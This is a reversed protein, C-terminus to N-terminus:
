YLVSDIKKCVSCLSEKQTLRSTTFKWPLFRQFIKTPINSSVSKEYPYKSILQGKTSTATLRSLKYSCKKIFVRAVMGADGDPNRCFNGNLADGLNAIKDQDLVFSLYPSDKWIQCETGSEGKNASGNYTEGNGVIFKNLKPIGLGINLSNM